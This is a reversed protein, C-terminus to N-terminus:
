FVIHVQTPLLKNIKTTPFNLKKRRITPILRTNNIYMILPDSGSLFSGKHYQSKRKRAFKFPAGVNDQMSLIAKLLISVM